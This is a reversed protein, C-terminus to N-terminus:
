KKASAEKLTKVEVMDDCIMRLDACDVALMVGTLSLHLWCVQRYSM